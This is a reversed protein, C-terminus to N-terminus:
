EAPPATDGQILQRLSDSLSANDLVYFLGGRGNQSSKCNPGSLSGQQNLDGFIALHRSDDTTVGIKAHNFDSGPGGKLGFTKGDWQGSTAIAVAGPKGLQGDWCDVPTSPDTSPIRPSAWWTATRLPVTGLVASVMQWPPVNLDSPKSILTVGSSLKATTVATDHRKHGLNAVLAQIDAPGGNHVIQPNTPDTAVSAHDLAQLVLVVDDKSLKVSFFHQSVKVDDDTICGLTNGDGQRPYQASGAGPWSPTSVQLVLGEGAENWALLGKSHGWPSSCNGSCGPISPADYFQDNWVVYYWAGNYIEDYTAGVPDSATDGLCGEGKALSPAQDSASVYQQGAIYSKPDGGFPCAISSGGCQPFAKANFKFVFWWNTPQGKAVLPVPAALDDAWAPLQLFGGLALTVAALPLLLRRRCAALTSSFM